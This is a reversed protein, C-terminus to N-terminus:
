RVAVRLEQRDVVALGADVQADSSRRSLGRMQDALVQQLMEADRRSRAVRVRERVEVVGSRRPREARHAAERMEGRENAHQFRGAFAREQEVAAVRPLARAGRQPRLALVHISAWFRSPTSTIVACQSNV